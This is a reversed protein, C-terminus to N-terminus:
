LAHREGIDDSTNSCASNVVTAYVKDNIIFNLHRTSTIIFHLSEIFYLQPLIVFNKTNNHM